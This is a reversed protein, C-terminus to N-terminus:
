VLVRHLLWSHELRQWRNKRRIGEMAVHLMGVCNLMRQEVVVRSQTMQEMTHVGHADVSADSHMAMCDMSLQEASTMPMDM